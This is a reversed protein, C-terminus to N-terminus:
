RYLAQHIPNSFYLNAKKYAEQLEHFLESNGNQRDPHRIKVLSKYKLDVINKSSLTADPCSALDFVEWWKRPEPGAPLAKFGTFSRQIFDSVGWREISRMAEITKYVAHMNSEVTDWKDCCIVIDTDEKKFYVAVGKDKIASKMYDARPFGDNRLPINSSIVVDVDARSHVRGYLLRSVEDVLNKVSKDLTPNEFRSRQPSQTRPYGVPWDLPYKQTNM